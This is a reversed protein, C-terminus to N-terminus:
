RGDVARAVFVLQYGFLGPSLAAFTRDIADAMTRPMARRLPGLPGGGDGFRHIVEFGNNILLHTCSAYTYWRYHTSDMIGASQYDFRGRLLALRNRYYLLNPIAVILRGRSFVLLQRAARLMATPDRLHELVHSALVVDYDANVLEPLGAELDHVIVRRCFARAASAENEVWTIGDVILGRSQLERANSGSGCGVDLVTRDTEAFLRLVAENVPGDYVV